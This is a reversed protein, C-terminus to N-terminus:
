KPVAAGAAPLTGAAGPLMRTGPWIMYMLSRFRMDM